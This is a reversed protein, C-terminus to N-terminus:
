AALLQSFQRVQQWVAQILVISVQKLSKSWLSGPAKLEDDIRHSPGPTKMKIMSYQKENLLSKLFSARM